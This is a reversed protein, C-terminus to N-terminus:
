GLNYIAVILWTKVIYETKKIAVDNSENETAMSAQCRRVTFPALSSVSSNVAAPIQVNQTIKSVEDEVM